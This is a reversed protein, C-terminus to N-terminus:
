SDARLLDTALATLVDVGDPSLLSELHFQVSAVGPAQIAHVVGTGADASIRVGPLGTAPRRAAFTNYFGVTVDRGFLDIVRQTGQHPAPLPAVTLGLQGALVQHSLCVALLPRSDARRRRILRDLAAIRPDGLERPDGPGPGAVLLDTDPRDPAEEWRCTTATMGLRRLLHALMDTWADEADVLLATRGALAPVPADHQPRLWFGALADNRRALAEAVGPHDVLRVESRPRRAAPLVGLAALVGAAKAHTEAVESSPDSHRVLTAGVPVRVGGDPTLYATRILIPADLTRRGADDQGILALVGAYHGRGSTEHRAIVRAANEMPSGTVTPAFMTQRLVERVDLDSHGHLLYETHALAGMQKLMPGVVQGGRACVRSMMKLEEDVVMFLEDTEKEDALFDLLGAGSPGSAPFRYTGSIPNMVVEGGACSVHREPTAGVMTLDGAHLAFTWYAGPEAVLLRRLVRLATVAPSASAVGLHDRRLVFNAGEGTGIEDEVVRRVLEAYTDDDVDFGRSTVGVPEQPLRALVDDLALVQSARVVLCRLPAGDDHCVLGREAVQRYSVAALVSATAGTPTDGPLPIDALRDVDVVDGTLVEVGGGGSRHLVAFPRHGPASLLDDLLDPV